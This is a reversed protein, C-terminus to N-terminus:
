YNAFQRVFCTLYDKTNTLQDTAIFITVTAQVWISKNFGKHYRKVGYFYTNKQILNCNFFLWDIREKVDYFSIDSSLLRYKSHFTNKCTTLVYSGSFFNSFALFSTAHNSIEFFGIYKFLIVFLERIQLM